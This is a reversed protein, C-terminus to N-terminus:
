DLDNDNPALRRPDATFSTVFAPPSFYLGDHVFLAVVGLSTRRPQGNLMLTEEAHRTVQIRVTRGEDDEPTVVIDGAARLVRWHYTLPRGTPSVSPMASVRVFHETADPGSWVRAVSEPTTLLREGPGFDEEVIEVRAAPPLRDETFARAMQIMATGNDGNALANPHAFPDLYAADGDVRTRRSVYQLASWIQGETALRARAAPRLAGLAHMSSRLEDIESGSSGQSIGVTM